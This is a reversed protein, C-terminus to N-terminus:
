FHFLKQLHRMGHTAYHNNLLFRFILFCNFYSNRSVISTFCLGDSNLEAWSSKRELRKLNDQQRLLLCVTTPVTLPLSVKRVNLCQAHKETVIVETANLQSIEKGLDGECDANPTTLCHKMSQHTLSARQCKINYQKINDTRFRIDNSIDASRETIQELFYVPWDATLPRHLEPIQRCFQPSFKFLKGQPYHM